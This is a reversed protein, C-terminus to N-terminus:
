SQCPFNTHFHDGIGFLSVLTGFVPSGVATGAFPFRRHVQHLRSRGSVERQDPHGGSLGVGEERKQLIQASYIPNHNSQNPQDIRHFQNAVSGSLGM